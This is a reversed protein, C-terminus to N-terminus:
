ILLNNIGEKLGIKPFWNLKSKAHSIDFFTNMIENERLGSYEVNVKKNALNSIIDLIEGISYSSGYGINFVDFFNKDYEIAKLFAELVDNIYIFDRRVKPSSLIIKKNNKVGDIIDPILFGKSQNKGYVNSLRLIICKLNYEKFYKKCLEEGKIKTKAYINNPNYKQNEDIPLYKPNGFVSATSVFIFKINNKKCFELVNLTGKVNVDYMEKKSYNTKTLTALHIIINIKDKIKITDRIDQKLPIIKYGKDKLFKTLHFGIFGKYGTILITKNKM